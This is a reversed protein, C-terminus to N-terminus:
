KHIGYKKEMKEVACRVKDIGYEDVLDRLSYVLWKCYDPNKKYLKTDKMLM